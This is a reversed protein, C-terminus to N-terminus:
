VTVSGGEPVSVGLLFLWGGIMFSVAAALTLRSVHCGPRGRASRYAWSPPSRPCETRRLVGRRRRQTSEAFVKVSRTGLQRAERMAAPIRSVTLTPLPRDAEEETILLVWSPDAPRLPPGELLRRVAPRSRLLSTAGPNPRTVRHCTM